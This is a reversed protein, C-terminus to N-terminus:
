KYAVFMMQLGNGLYGYMASYYCLACADSFGAARCMDLFDWGYDYFVLSGEAPRTPNGHYVPSLLHVVADDELRARQRTTPSGAHFPISVLLLGGTRLVRHAEALARSIDPVHEYVDNSVIVDLAGAEFTLNLADEHRIGNIMAGPAIDWGLYESGVVDCNTLREKAWRYFPTIQEYLYVDIGGASMQEKLYGAMFRQRNNLGCEGCILRERFNPIIRDSYLWDVAFHAAKGCAQCYGPVTWSEEGRHDDAMVTEVLMRSSAVRRVLEQYEELGRVPVISVDHVGDKLGSEQM